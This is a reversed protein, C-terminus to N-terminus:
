HRGLDPHGDGDLDGAAIASPGGSGGGPLPYSTPKGLGGKGDGFFVMMSQGQGNYGSNALAVDLKGDGSLDAVATQNPEIGAQYEGFLSFHGTGDGLFIAIHGYGTGGYETVILDQNGDGNLDGCSVNVPFGARVLFIIPPGFSGDPEGLLISVKSSLTDAVALDLIGDNNFDAAIVQRSLIAKGGIKYYEAPRFQGFGLCTLSLCLFVIRAPSCTCM